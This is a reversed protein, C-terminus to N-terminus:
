SARIQAADLKRAEAQAYLKPILWLNFVTFLPATVIGTNLGIWWVGFPQGKALAIFGFMLAVGGISAGTWGVFEILRRAKVKPILLGCLCGYLGGLMGVSTGVIAGAWGVEQDTFWPTM